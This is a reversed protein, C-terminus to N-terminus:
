FSTISRAHTRILDNSPTKRVYSYFEKYVETLTALIGVLLPGMIVGIPGFTSLGLAISMGVLHPNGPLQAMVLGSLAEAAFHTGIIIAGGLYDARAFLIGAAPMWIMWNGSLPIIALFSCLASFIYKLQLGTWWFGFWTCAFHIIGVLTSCLLISSISRSVSSTLREQKDGSFPSLEAVGQWIQRKYLVMTFLTTCFVVCSILLNGINSIISLTSGFFVNIHDGLKQVAGMAQEKLDNVNIADVDWGWSNAYAAAQKYISSNRHDALLEQIENNQKIWKVAADTAVVSEQFCSKILFFMPFLVIVLLFVIVAVTILFERKSKWAMAVCFFSMALLPFVLAGFIQPVYLVTCFVSIHTLLIRGYTCNAM